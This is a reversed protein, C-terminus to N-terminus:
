IFTHMHSDYTFTFAGVTTPFLKTCAQHGCFFSTIMYIKEIDYILLPSNKLFECLCGFYVYKASCFEEAISSHHSGSLAFKEM